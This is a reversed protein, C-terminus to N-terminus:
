NLEFVCSNESLITKKISIGLDRCGLIFHSLVIGLDISYTDANAAKQVTIKIKKESLLDFSWPQRNIASPAMRCCNLLFSNENTLFASGNKILDKLEKKVGNRTFTKILLNKKSSKEKGFEIFCPAGFSNSYGKWCTGLDLATLGIVAQEGQFGYEIFSIGNKEKVPAFLQYSCAQEIKEVRWDLRQGSISETSELIKKIEGTQEQSLLFNDFSRTSHRLNIIESYAM